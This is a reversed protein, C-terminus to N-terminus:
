AAAADATDVDKHFRRHIWMPEGGIDARHRPVGTQAPMVAVVQEGERVYPKVREHLKERLGM